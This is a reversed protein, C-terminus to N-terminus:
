GMTEDYLENIDDNIDIMSKGSFVWLVGTIFGRIEATHPDRRSIIKQLERAVNDKSIAGGPGIKSKILTLSPKMKIVMYDM